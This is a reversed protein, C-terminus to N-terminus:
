WAMPHNDGNKGGEYSKEDISILVHVDKNLKKFNYWEDKRTWVDPLHKTSAHNKDNIILKAEQQRPHSEFNAGALRIYWGWDYEADTAAHIGMYGGGAQIYRELAIRQVTNFLPGTTNLFVIASYERLIDDTFMSADSTTDVDFDNAAGLKQIAAVGAPISQHYFGATKTFVLIKPKGSRKNCASFLFLMVCCLLLPFNKKM